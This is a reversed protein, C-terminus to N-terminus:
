MKRYFYRKRDKLNIIFTDVEKKYMKNIYLTENVEKIIPEETSHDLSHIYDGFVIFDKTDAPLEYVYVDENLYTFLNIPVDNYISKLYDKNYIDYLISITLYDDRNIHSRSMQGTSYTIETPNNICNNQNEEWKNFYKIYKTNTYQSVCSHWDIYKCQYISQKMDILKDLFPNFIENNYNVDFYDIKTYNYNNHRNVIGLVYIKTTDELKDLSFM